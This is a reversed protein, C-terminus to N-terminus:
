EATSMTRMQELMEQQDATGHLHDGNGWVFESAVGVTLAFGLVFAFLNAYHRNM